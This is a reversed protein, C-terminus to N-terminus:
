VFPTEIGYEFRQLRRAGCSHDVEAATLALQESTQQGVVLEGLNHADVDRAPREVQGFRTELQITESGLLAFSNSQQMTRQHIAVCTQRSEVRRCDHLHDLM